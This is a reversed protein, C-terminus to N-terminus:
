NKMENIMQETEEDILVYTTDLTYQHSYKDYKYERVELKSPNYAELEESSTITLFGDKERTFQANKLYDFFALEYYNECQKLFLGYVCGGTGCAGLYVLIDEKGDANFDVEEHPEANSFGDPHEFNSHQPPIIRVFNESHNVELRFLSDENCTSGDLQVRILNSEKEVQCSILLLLVIGLVNKM